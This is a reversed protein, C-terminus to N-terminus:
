ALWQGPWPVAPDDPQSCPARPGDRTESSRSSAQESVTHAQGPRQQELDCRRQRGQLPLLPRPPPQQRAAAPNVDRIVDRRWGM